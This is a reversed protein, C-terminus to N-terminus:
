GSGCRARPPWSCRRRGNPASPPPRSTSRSSCTRSTGSSRTSRGTRTGAEEAIDGVSASSYGKRAFVRAASDLLEVRTRAAREARSQRNQTM